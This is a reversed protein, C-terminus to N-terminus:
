ARMPGAPGGDRGSADGISWRRRPLWGERGRWRIWPVALGALFGLWAGALADSAFAVGLAVEAALVLVLLALMRRRWAPLVSWSWSVGAAITAARTSPILHSWDTTGITTLILLGRAFADVLGCALLAFATTVFLEFAQQASARERQASLWLFAGISGILWFEPAGLIGFGTLIGPWCREMWSGFPEDIFHWLVILLPVLGVGSGALLARWWWSELLPMGVPLRRDLLLDDRADIV